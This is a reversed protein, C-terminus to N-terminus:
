LSGGCMWGRAEELKSMLEGSCLNQSPTLEIRIRRPFLTFLSAGSAKFNRGVTSRERSAVNSTSIFVVSASARTACNTKLAGFKAVIRQRSILKVSTAALFTSAVQPSM